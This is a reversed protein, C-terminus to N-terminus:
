VCEDSNVGEKQKCVRSLNCQEDTKAIWQELKIEADRINECKPTVNKFYGGEVQVQGQYYPTAQYEKLGEWIRTVYLGNVIIPQREGILQTSKM